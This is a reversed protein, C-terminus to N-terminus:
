DLKRQTGCGDNQLMAGYESLTSNLLLMLKYPDTEKLTSAGGQEQILEMHVKITERITGLVPSETRKLKNTIIQLETSVRDLSVHVNDYIKECSQRFVTEATKAVKERETQEAQSETELRDTYESGLTVMVGLAETMAESIKALSISELNKTEALLKLENRLRRYRNATMEGEKGDRKAHEIRPDFFDHVKDEFAMDHQTSEVTETVVQKKTPCTPAHANTHKPYGCQSCIPEEGKM